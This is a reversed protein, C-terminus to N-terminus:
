PPKTYDIYIFPTTAISKAYFFVANTFALM